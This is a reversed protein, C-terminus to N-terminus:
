GEEYTTQTFWLVGGRSPACSRKRYAEDEESRKWKWDFEHMDEEHSGAEAGGAGGV